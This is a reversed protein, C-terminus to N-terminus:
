NTSTEQLLEEVQNRVNTYIPQHYDNSEKGDNSVICPSIMVSHVEIDRLRLVTERLHDANKQDVFLSIGLYCKGKLKQFNRINELLKTYSGARTGRYTSYSEDDWGDLPIRLWTAHHSFVEALEGELRSGNTLSAFRVPSDALRRVTKLLPKYIFSEGM